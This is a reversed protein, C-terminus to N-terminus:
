HWFSVYSDIIGHFFFDSSFCLPYFFLGLSYIYSMAGSFNDQQFGNVVVTSSATTTSCAYKFMQHFELEAVKEKETKKKKNKM